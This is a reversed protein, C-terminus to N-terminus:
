EEVPVHKIRHIRKSGYGMDLSERAKSIENHPTSIDPRMRFGGELEIMQPAKSHLKGESKTGTLKKKL